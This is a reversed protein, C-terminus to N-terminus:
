GSLMGELARAAENVTLWGRDDTCGSETLRSWLEWMQPVGLGLEKLRESESFVQAPPGDMVIRGEALVAVRDALLPVHEVDQTVWLVAMGTAERLRSVTDLVQQTGGPDLSATPEDLVLIRPRPALAAALAVRQKQGGSLELPSRGRLHDIGVSQLSETLRKEIERPPLALSELGFAVEDAVTMNFLQSEPEQRVLGVTQSLQGPASEQTSEGEVWVHGSLYGGVLHPILGNLTLCLTSKGAGTPGLLALCEGPDLSLSVGQLVPVPEGGPALPPYTYHLDEIILPPL